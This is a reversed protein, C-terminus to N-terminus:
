ITIYSDITLVSNREKVHKVTNNKSERFGDATWNEQKQLLPLQFLDVLAAPNDLKKKKTPRRVSTKAIKFENHVQNPVENDDTLDVVTGSRCASEQKNDINDTIQERKGLPSSWYGDKTGSRTM